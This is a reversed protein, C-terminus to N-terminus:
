LKEAVLLLRESGLIYPECDTSEFLEIVDFDAKELMACVEGATYIWHLAQRHEEHGNRIFTYDTQVCGERCQYKNEILMLMDGVKVWEREGGNVLFSEAVMASDLVFKAGSKLSNGIATFLQSTGQRDFYGFSNGMCFAGDFKQAFSITRMDGQVFQVLENGLKATKAAKAAERVFEECYDLGTVKYSAKGMPVSLRGNGCPVDLLHAGEAVALVEQLFACEDETEEPSKANRWLELAAGSFFTKYWQNATSKNSM